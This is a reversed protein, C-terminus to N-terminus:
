LKDTGNYYMGTWRNAAEKAVKNAQGSFFYIHMYLWRGRNIAENLHVLPWFFLSRHLFSLYHCTADWLGAWSGLSIKTEIINTMFLWHLCNGERLHGNNPEKLSLM